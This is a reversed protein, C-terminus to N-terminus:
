TAAIFRCLWLVLGSTAVLALYDGTILGSVPNAARADSLKIERAILFLPFTVSIAVMFALAIYAWVYRIGLQRAERVMWILAAFTFLTIDIGISRTAPNAKMDIVFRAFAAITTAPTFDTFYYLNQNWTGYLALLAILAYTVCLLQRSTPM